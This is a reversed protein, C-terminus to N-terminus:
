KKYGSDLLEIRGFLDKEGKVELTNCLVESKFKTDEQEDLKRRRKTYSRRRRCQRQKTRPKNIETSPSTAVIQSHVLSLVWMMVFPVMIEM